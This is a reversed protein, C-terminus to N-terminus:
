GKRPKGDADFEIRELVEGRRRFEMAKAKFGPPLPKADPTGLTGMNVVRKRRIPVVNATPKPADPRDTDM